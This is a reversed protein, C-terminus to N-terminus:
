PACRYLEAVEADTLARAYVRVDDLRGRWAYVTENMGLMLPGQATREQDCTGFVCRAPARAGDLYIASGDTRGNAFVVAVHTWRGVLTPTEIGWCEGTGGNVCLSLPGGYDTLWLCYRPPAPMDTPTVCFVGEDAGADGHWMWFVVTNFAGPTSDFPLGAVDIRTLVTAAFDLADGVRGPGVTPSPDGLMMGDRGLGSRDRVVSDMVDAADLPWWGALGAFTPPCTSPIAADAGGDDPFPADLFPADLLPADLLPVDPVPADLLPADFPPADLGISADRAPDYGIRGCGLLAAAALLCPLARRM